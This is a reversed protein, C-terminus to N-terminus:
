AGACPSSREQLRARGAINIVVAHPKVASGPPPCVMLTQNSRSTGNPLFNIARDADRTDASNRVSFGRPVGAFTHLVADSGARAAIVWGEAFRGTCAAGGGQGIAAPCLTIPMGRLVAETRALNIASLLRGAAVGVQVRHMVDRMAPAATTLVLAAIFLVALMEILTLGRARPLASMRDM